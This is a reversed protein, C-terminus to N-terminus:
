VRSPRTGYLELIMTRTVPRSVNRVLHELLLFKKPRLDITKGSYTMVDNLQDSTLSFRVQWNQHITLVLKQRAGGNGWKSTPRPRTGDVKKV